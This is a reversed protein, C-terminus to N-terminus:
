AAILDQTLSVVAVCGEGKHSLYGLYKRFDEFAIIGRRIQEGSSRCSVPAKLYHHARGSDFRLPRQLSSAVEFTQLALM